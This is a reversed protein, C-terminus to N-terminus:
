PLYTCNLNKTELLKSKDNRALYYVRNAIIDAARVLTNKSSNCFKVDLHKLNKFIPKHVVNYKFNTVGIKFETELSERLEYIGDTATTHEDIYFYLGTIENPDIVKEKILKEFAKKVGIKYAYDLYRQKTKKHNYFNNYVKSQNIITAFKYENNLSRFLKLKNKNSLNTAKLEIEKGISNSRRIDREAKSYKRSLIEKNENEIVIIGAFVYTDNNIKDFVGSEDSYIYINMTEGKYLNYFGGVLPPKRM